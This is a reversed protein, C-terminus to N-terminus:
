VNYILDTFASWLADFVGTYVAAIISTVIVVVTSYYTEDRTPWTVKSLEGVVEHALENVRPHRYLLFSGVIGILAAAGSVITPDPEAFFGWAFTILRDSLYFTIVAAAIFAFQVWREIGLLSTVPNAENEAAAEALEREEREIAAAERRAVDDDAGADDSDGAASPDSTDEDGDRELDKDDEDAM